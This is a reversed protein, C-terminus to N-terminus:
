VNRYLIHTFSEAQGAPTQSVFQAHEKLECINRAGSYSFGSKINGALDELINKVSGKYPITTAIGEPSSSKGRWSNQAERSAMGRYRKVQRTRGQGDVSDIIEGPAEDTGALLSGCMIADAGIALAKVMDGANKIGGDIIIGPRKKQPRVREWTEVCDLLATLNPVGHGTNIRTSCISGGGIGVRVSDAGWDDLNLLGNGTAVNGAMLHVKKDFFLPKLKEMAQRVVVHDGHAVDICIVCAGAEVLAQAREFYDGTAGIAAGVPLFAGGPVNKVLEVQQEITNYRHIIGLGGAQNMADVMESETVTDMPSSVIPLHLKLGGVFSTIDVESRSKIDSYQPVLLVDDWALGNNIKM